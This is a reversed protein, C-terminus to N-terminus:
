CWTSPRARAVAGAGRRRRRGGAVQLGVAQLLERAVEQNVPNDEVLLV